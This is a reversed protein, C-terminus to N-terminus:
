IRKKIVKAPVGVAISDPPIDSVVVAGAGIVAGRGITVGDLIVAGAGVWVNDEIKVGKGIMDQSFSNNGLKTYDHESAIIVTHAAIHVDDGIVIGGFGYLVSYDNVTSGKGIEISGNNTKLLAYPYITTYEGIRIRGNAGNACLRSHKELVVGDALFIRSACTLEAGPSVYVDAGTIGLGRSLCIIKKAFLKFHNKGAM